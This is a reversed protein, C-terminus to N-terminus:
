CGFSAHGAALESSRRMICSYLAMVCWHPAFVTVAAERSGLLRRQAFLQMRRAETPINPLAEPFMSNISDACFDTKM